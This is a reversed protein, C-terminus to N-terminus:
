DDQTEALVANAKKMGEAAEDPLNTARLEIVNLEDIIGGIVGMNVGQSIIGGRPPRASLSIRGINDWVNDSARRLSPLQHSKQDLDKIEITPACPSSGQVRQNLTLQEVFQAIRGDFDPGELGSAGAM